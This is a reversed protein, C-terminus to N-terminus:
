RVSSQSGSGASQCTAPQSSDKTEGPIGAIREVAAAASPSSPALATGEDLLRLVREGAELDQVLSYSHGAVLTFTGNFDVDPCASTNTETFPGLSTRNVAQYASPVGSDSVWLFGNASLRSRFDLSNCVLNNLYRVESGSPPPPASCSGPFANFDAVGGAQGNLPKTYTEVSNNQTDTITLVFQFGTSASVLVWFRGPNQGCANLMKVLVEWNDPDAQYFYFLGSASAASNTKPAAVLAPRLGAASGDSWQLTAAFRNNLLCLTTSNPVCAAEVSTQATGLAAVSLLLVLTARRFTAGLLGLTLGVWEKTAKEQV